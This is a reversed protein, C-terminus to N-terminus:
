RGDAQKIAAESLSRYGVDSHLGKLSQITPILEKPAAVVRLPRLKPQFAVQLLATHGTM